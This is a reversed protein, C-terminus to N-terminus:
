NYKTTSKLLVPGAGFSAKAPSLTKTHKIGAWGRCAWGYLLRGEAARGGKHFGKHTLTCASPLCCACSFMSDPLPLSQPQVQVLAQDLPTPVLHLPTPELIWPYSHITWPYGHIILPYGRIIWSYGHIIWPYDMSIWSYDMSIWPYEISIWPYHM